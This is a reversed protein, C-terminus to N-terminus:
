ETIDFCSHVMNMEHVINNLWICEPITQDIQESSFRLFANLHPKQVVINAARMQRPMEEVPQVPRRRPRLM